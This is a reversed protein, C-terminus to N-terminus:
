STGKLSNCLLMSKSPFQRHGSGTKRTSLRIMNTVGALILVVLAYFGIKFFQFAHPFFAILITVSIPTAMDAVDNVLIQVTAVKVHAKGSHLAIVTVVLIQNRKGALAPMKTGRTM